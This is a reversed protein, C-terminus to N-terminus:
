VIYYIKGDSYYQVSYKETGTTNYVTNIPNERGWVRALFRTWFRALFGTLFRALIRTLFTILIKGWFYVLVQSCFYTSM